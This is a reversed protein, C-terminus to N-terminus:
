HTFSCQGYSPLITDLIGVQLKCLSITIIGVEMLFVNNDRAAKIMEKVQCVNVGLPKECLINHGGNAIAIVSGYHLGNISGIYTM